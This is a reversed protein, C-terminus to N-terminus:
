QQDSRRRITTAAERLAAAPDRGHVIGQSLASEVPSWVSRMHPRNSLSVTDALQARFAQAFADAKVDPELYASANAVLQGGLRFRALAAADETLCRMLAFAAPKRRSRASMLLGEVGLFPAARAGTHNLKPLPAVGWGPHGALEGRFWPGNVTFALEGRKFLATVLVSTAEAPTVKDRVLDRVFAVSDAAAPEDLALTDRDDSYVRGGWAHLWPAHFYLSQLEWAVGWVRPDKAQLARTQAVLEGTTTPPTTVLRKDYFLALTKFAMPLGYLDGRYVLPAVTELVFRDILADDAWLGLPELLRGEAWHGVRDHANIFVDPGNGRPIAVSVKNVFADYPIAVARVPQNLSAACTQVAADLAKVEGGRYAHWLVLADDPPASCASLLLVLLVSRRFLSADVNQGRHGLLRNM